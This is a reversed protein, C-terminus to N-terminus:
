RLTVAQGERSSKYAAEIMRVVDLADSPVVPLPADERVARYIGDYFALYNGPLTPYKEKRVSGNSETHITGWQDEPEEGWHKRGPIEGLKLKEEQPDIGWKLFSGQTGHLIFRPGPERVLYSSRLQCKFDPYHLFLDFSDDTRAGDRLLRSDCFLRDPWGFLQLAQDILHSGLNYLTGTGTSQDKWSDQIRTRYRDFHSEYDVLRGLLGKGLIERVTLFDGDWRRNQFVTLLTRAKEAERILRTADSARLTFPKEVVVHKGANIAALAMDFHLHDPTNVVVLRIDPDELIEDYSRVIVSGPHKGESERKRRELIKTIKFGPHKELLPGHFVLGSMGYACLATPIPEMQIRTM